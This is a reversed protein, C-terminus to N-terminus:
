RGPEKLMYGLGRVTQVLPTPWHAQLKRRLYGIYVEVVNSDPDLSGGWVHDALHERSVVAEARTLLQELLRYETATLDVRAGNVRVTHDRPDIQIPGYQLVASLHRTRGRRTVARIRALLEDFEFPKTLYDDAGADLGTIRDQTEGRATLMLIPTDVAHARLRRCVDVGNMGPLMLDLIIVDYDDAYAREEAEVGDEVLDVIHREERLGKLLFHSISRDDEVLLIRM